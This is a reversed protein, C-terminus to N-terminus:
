RACDYVSALDRQWSSGVGCGEELVLELCEAGVMRLLVDLRLLWRDGGLRDIM